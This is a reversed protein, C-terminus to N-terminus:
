PPREINRKVTRNTLLSIGLIPTPTAAQDCADPRGFKKQIFIVLVKAYEKLKPKCCFTNNTQAKRKNTKGADHAKM